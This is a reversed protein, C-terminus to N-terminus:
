ISDGFGGIGKGARSELGHMGAEQGQCEGISPIRVLFQVQSGALLCCEEPTEAVLEQRAKGQHLVTVRLGIFGKM